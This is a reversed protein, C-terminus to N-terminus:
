KTANVLGLKIAKSVKTNSYNELLVQRAVAGKDRSKDVNKACDILAAIWGSHNLAPYGFDGRALVEGNMGFPSAIVPIGCAMYQLMKFSCKGRSLDSDDLPMIGVDFEHLMLHETKPDWQHFLLQNAPLSLEHPARDAIVMLRASKHSRLFADLASEIMKLFRFNGSTGTWGVVFPSGATKLTPRPVFREADVATPIIRVNQSFQSCWDALFSNGAFVIAARNVLRSIQSRGMPNYLWIADDIDLVLPKGLLVASDDLGPLFNRELWTVDALRSGIIGPIRLALNLATQAVIVPPLFRTRVKGLAGPLRAGQNIAPCYERVDLGDGALMPLYQRVRFRASPTNRGSTLAAVRLIPRPLTNDKRM